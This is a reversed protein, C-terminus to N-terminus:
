VRLRDAEESLKPQAVGAVSLLVRELSQWADGRLMGKSQLDLLACEKQLDDIGDPGHRKVTAQLVPLRRRPIRPNEGAALERARQLQNALAAIVMFVAVGEQRLTDLMRHVRVAGGAFAADILEFTDFHAADGVGGEIDDAGIRGKGHLLKLKEIEQAAALLNGEVREALADLADRDLELGARRCRGDLWRPLERGGIPWVPIVAGAKEIAKYWANSRQRWDLGAARCLVLTDALPADLYGRIADSGARDLGRPPIRVDLLRKTAFLSLNGADAFLEDWPARAVAEFVTREDYGLRTAAAVIDDCAEDVLLQEEGSVLYIHRLDGAQLHRHLQEARIQM